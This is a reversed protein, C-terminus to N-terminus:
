VCWGRRRLAAIKARYGEGLERLLRCTQWDHARWTGPVPGRMGNYDRNM